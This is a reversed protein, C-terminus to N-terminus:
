FRVMDSCHIKSLFLYVFLSYKLYLFNVWCISLLDYAGKWMSNLMPDLLHACCSWRDFPSFFFVIHFLFPLSVPNYVVGAAQAQLRTQLIFFIPVLDARFRM